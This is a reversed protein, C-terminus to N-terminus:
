AARGADPGDAPPQADRRIDNVADLAFALQALREHHDASGSANRGAALAVDLWEVARALAERHFVLSGGTSAAAALRLSPPLLEPSMRVGSSWSLLPQVGPDTLAQGVGALIRTVTAAAIERPASGPDDARIYAHAIPEAVAPRLQATLQQRVCALLHHDPTPESV